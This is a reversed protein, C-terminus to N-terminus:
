KIFPFPYPYIIYLTSCSYTCSYNFFCNKSKNHLRSNTASSIPIAGWGWGCPGLGWGLVIQKIVLNRTIKRKWESIKPVLLNGDKVLFTFIESPQQYGRTCSGALTLENALTTPVIPARSAEKRQQNRTHQTSLKRTLLKPHVHLMKEAHPSSANITRPHTIRQGLNRLNTTV